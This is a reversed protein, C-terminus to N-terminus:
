PTPLRPSWAALRSESPTRLQRTRGSEVDTIWLQKVGSRDSTFVVHRSDPAWSPDDNRGETAVARVTQDRMSITMIQKSNDNLTQFAVLRGDPSWDPGTRNGRDGFTAASLV